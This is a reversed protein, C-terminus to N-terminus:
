FQCLKLFTVVRQGVEASLWPYKHGPVQLSQASTLHEGELRSSIWKFPTKILTFILTKIKGSSLSDKGDNDLQLVNDSEFRECWFPIGTTIVYVSDKTQASIKKTTKDVLAAGNSLGTIIIKKDPFNKNITEIKEALASSSFEFSNFFDKASSIKALLSNKTRIYPVVLSNYGLEDLTQQIGKIIPAFDEAQELPTNGWGGSNFIIIIDNEMVSDFFNRDLELQYFGQELWSNPGWLFFLGFLIILFIIVQKTKTNKM